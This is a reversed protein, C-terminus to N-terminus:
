DRPESGESWAGRSAAERAFEGFDRAPRGLVKEIDTTTTALEGSAITAYLETSLEIWEDPAGQEKQEEAYEETSIPSYVVPKGTAESIEAAVDDFTLPRPGTLEYEHGAHQDDTLAAVAMAAIDDADVFSEAGNGAPVRFEGELVADRLFDESFTQNFWRLRLVTLGLGADRLTQELAHVVKRGEEDNGVEPVSAMVARRVGSEFARKGFVEFVEVAKPDHLDTTMVHVSTVGDLADAWTSEDDWDFPIPTSRSGPRVDHGQARLLDVIRRGTKGTAGMVLITGDSM